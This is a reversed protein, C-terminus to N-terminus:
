RGGRVMSLLSSLDTTRASNFVDGEHKAYLMKGQAVQQTFLGRLTQTDLTRGGAYYTRAVQGLAYTSAFSMVAGTATGAMKGLKKGLKKKKKGKKGIAKGLVGGVLKRAYTEVVQSTMGVGVTALFEKIHGQDLSYGHHQGIRYVMKMQLPVIAMTALSQPLLELGGNLIAYRLIMGDLASDATPQPPPASAAPRPAPVPLMSPTAAVPDAATLPASALADGAENVAATAEASLGLADRLRGLFAAEAADTRGDADCVGVAMEYALTRLAPDALHPTVEALQVQGLLVRSYLTPSFATGLSDFIAKLRDREEAQKTGDAFAAMLCITAIADRTEPSLNM